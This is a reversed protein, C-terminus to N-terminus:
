KGGLEIGSLSDITDLLLDSVRGLDGIQKTEDFSGVAADGFSTRTSRPCRVTERERRRLPAGILHAPGSAILTKMAAEIHGLSHALWGSM